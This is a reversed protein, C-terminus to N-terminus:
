SRSFFTHVQNSRFLEVRESVSSKSFKNFASRAAKVARDVDRDSGVNIKGIVEENAPNVLDITEQNIPNVWEGDIYFKKLEM